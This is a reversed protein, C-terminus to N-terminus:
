EVVKARFREGNDEPDMLYTRNILDDPQIIKGSEGKALEGTNTAELDPAVTFDYIPKRGPPSKVVEAIVEDPTRGEGKYRDLRKNRASTDLQSRVADRYIVKQTDETLVAYTFHNGISEAFGVFFGKREHTDSPYKVKKAYSLRDDTAYYVPEYFTFMFVHSIDPTKGYKAEYPTRGHLEPTSTINLIFIVYLTALLWCNAPAGSRNLILNTKRKVNQYQREAPNM